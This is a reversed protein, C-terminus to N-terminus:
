LNRVLAYIWCDTGDPLYKKMLGECEFGLAEVLKKAQPFDTRVTVQLRRLRNEFIMQEMIRNICMIIEVKFEKAKNSLIIWAEGVGTWYVVVGGVGVIEGDVIATKASGNLELKPYNKVAGEIPNQKLYDLDEQTADRIKIM